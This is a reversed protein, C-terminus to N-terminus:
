SETPHHNLLNMYYDELKQRSEIAYVEFGNQTLFQVASPVEERGLAGTLEGRDNLRGRGAWPGANLLALAEDARGVTIRIQRESQSLLAKASGQVVCHGRDVVVLDTAVAEVESLHHSSLLITKGQEQHLNQIMERMDVLGQPDLGTGPEDLVVLDPDHLLCQALGLRQRMGHSFSSVKDNERGSLGVFDMLELSRRRYDKVGSARALLELNQLASLYKYFDPKEILCGIRALIAQRHTRYQLGFLSLQGRSPRILDVLMRLTTSKGAGNPGLFGMVGGAKLEFNLGDVARFTGYDKVLDVAKVVTSDPPIPARPSM